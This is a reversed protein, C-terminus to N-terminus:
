IFGAAAHSPWSRKVHNLWRDVEAAFEDPTRTEAISPIRLSRLPDNLPVGALYEDRWRELTAACHEDSLVDSPVPSLQVDTGELSLSLTRSAAQARETLMDIDAATARETKGLKRVWITGELVSRDNIDVAEQRLSHIPDGWRPAEVTLFLVSAGDHRVYAPAWSIRDGVYPTLWNELDASDHETVGVLNEPEVGLLLYGLGEAHQSARDPHRNAFGIIQRAVALRGPVRTLDYDTKWELWDTEPIAGRANLVFAVIEEHESPRRAAKTWDPIM